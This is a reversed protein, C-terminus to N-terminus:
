IGWSAQLARARIERPVRARASIATIQNTPRWIKGPISWWPLTCAHVTALPSRAETETPKRSDRIAELLGTAVPAGETTTSEVYISNPIAVGLHPAM